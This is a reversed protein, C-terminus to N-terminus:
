TNGRSVLLGAKATHHTRPARSSPVVDEQAPFMSRSETM